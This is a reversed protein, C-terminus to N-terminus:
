KRFRPWEHAKMYAPDTLLQIPDTGGSAVSAQAKDILERIESTEEAPPPTFRPEVTSTQFLVGAVAAAMMLVLTKM